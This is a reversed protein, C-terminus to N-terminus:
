ANKESHSQNKGYKLSQTWPLKLYRKNKRCHRSKHKSALCIKSLVRLFRIKDSNSDLLEEFEGEVQDALSTLFNFVGDTLDADDSEKLLYVELERTIEEFIM